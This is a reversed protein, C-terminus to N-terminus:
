TEPRRIVAAMSRATAGAPTTILMSIAMKKTANRLVVTAFAATM